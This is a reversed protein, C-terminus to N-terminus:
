QALLWNNYPQLHPNTKYTEGIEIMDRFPLNDRFTRVYVNNQLLADVEVMIKSYGLENRPKFFPTRRICEAAINAREKPTFDSMMNEPYLKKFTEWFVKHNFQDFVGVMCEPRRKYRAEYPEIAATIIQKTWGKKGNRVDFIRKKNSGEKFKLIWGTDFLLDELNVKLSHVVDIWFEIKEETGTVVAIIAYDGGDEIKTLIPYVIYARSYVIVNSAIVKPTTDNIAKM